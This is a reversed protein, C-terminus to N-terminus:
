LGKGLETLTPVRGLLHRLSEEFAKRTFPKVGMKVNLRLLVTILQDTLLNYDLGPPMHLGDVKSKLLLPIMRDITRFCLRQDATCDSIQTKTKAYAFLGSDGM